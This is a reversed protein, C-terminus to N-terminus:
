SEDGAPANETEQATTKGSAAEDAATEESKDSLVEELGDIM